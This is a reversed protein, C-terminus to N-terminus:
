PAPSSDLSSIDDKTGELGDKGLSRLEFGRADGEPLIRYRYERMWPDVPIRDLIKTWPRGEPPYDAPKEMLARFGQETTPYEGANLKYAKIAAGISSFDPDVKSLKPATHSGVHFVGSIMLLIIIGLATTATLLFRSMWNFPPKEGIRLFDCGYLVQM